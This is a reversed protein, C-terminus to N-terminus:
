TSPATTAVVRNRHSTGAALRSSVFVHHDNEECANVFGCGLLGPRAGNGRTRLGANCNMGLDEHDHAVDAEIKIAHARRHERLGERLGRRQEDGHSASFRTWDYWPKCSLIPREIVGLSLSDVFHAANPLRNTEADIGQYGSFAPSM